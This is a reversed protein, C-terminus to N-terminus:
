HTSVPQGNSFFFSINVGLNFLYPVQAVQVSDVIRELNLLVGPVYYVSKALSYAYRRKVIEASLFAGLCMM